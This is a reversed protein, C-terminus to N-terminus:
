SLALANSGLTHSVGRTSDRHRGPLPSPPLLNSVRSWETNNPLFQDLLVVDFLSQALAQLARTGTPAMEVQHRPELNTCLTQVLPRDRDVILIRRAETEDSQLSLDSPVGPTTPARAGPVAALATVDPACSFRAM